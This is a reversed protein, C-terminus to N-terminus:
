TPDDALTTRLLNAQGRRLRASLAQNSIDFEAAIAALTTERPVEFYGNELAALLAKRQADTLGYRGPVLDPDPAQERYLRELRFGVGKELCRDRYDVLVERSPVRARVLTEDTVTIELVTVDYEAAVPYTLRQAASGTLRVSYLRRDAAEELRTSAAVSADEDLAAEFAAFEDGFAWFLLKPEDAETGYVEELRIRDIAESATELIPTHLEFEVILAM